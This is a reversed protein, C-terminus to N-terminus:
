ETHIIDSADGVFWCEIAGKEDFRAGREDNWPLRSAM